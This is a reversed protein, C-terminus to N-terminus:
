AGANASRRAVIRGHNEHYGHNREASKRAAAADLLGTFNGLRVRKRDVYVVSEWKQIKEDWRVGPIGSLSRDSVKANKSNQVPLVDRLNSVRNNLRDGDVHDIQHKPYSGYIMLWIVRHVTHMKGDAHVMRYGYHNTHGVEAGAAARPGRYVRWRLTGTEADYTFRSNAWALDYTM